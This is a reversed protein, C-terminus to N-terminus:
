SQRGRQRLQHTKWVSYALFPIGTLCFTLGINKIDYTVGIYGTLIIWVPVLALLRLRAQRKIVKDQIGKLEEDANFYSSALNAYKIAENYKRQKFLELASEKSLHFPHDPDKLEERKEELLKIQNEQAMAQESPASNSQISHSEGIQVKANNKIAVAKEYARQDDTKLAEIVEQQRKETLAEFELWKDSTDGLALKVQEKIGEILEVVQQQVQKLEEASSHSKLYSDYSLATFGASAIASITKNNSASYITSFGGVVASVMAVNKRSVASRTALVAKIYIDYLQSACEFSSRQIISLIDERNEDNSVAQAKDFCYFVESISIDEMILGYKSLAMGCWAEVSNTQMALEKFKEQADRFRRGKLDLTALDYAFLLSQTDMM